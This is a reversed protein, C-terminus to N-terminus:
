PTLATGYLKGGTSYCVHYANTGATISTGWTASNASLSITNGSFTISSFDLDWCAGVTSPFVVTNSGTLTGTFHIHPCQYVAAGLTTTGTTLAQGCDYWTYATNMGAVPQSVQVINSALALVTTSNGILLYLTGAGPTNVYLSTGNTLLSYNSGTPTIGTAPTGLYIASGTTNPWGVAFSEKTDNQVEFYGPTGGADAPGPINMVVNCSSQNAGVSASSPAQCGITLNNPPQNGTQQSQTVTPNVTGSDWSLTSANVLVTGADGSLAVAYNSGTLGNIDGILPVPPPARFPGSVRRGCGFLPLTAILCLAYLKM